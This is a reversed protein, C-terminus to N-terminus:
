DKWCVQSETSNDNRYQSHSFGLSEAVEGAAKGFCCVSLNLGEPGSLVMDRNEWIGQYRPRFFTFHFGKLVATHVLPREKVSKIGSHWPGLDSVSCARM